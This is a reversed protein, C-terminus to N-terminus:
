FRLLLYRCYFLVAVSVSIIAGDSNTIKRPIDPPSPAGYHKPTNRTCSLVSWSVRTSLLRQVYHVCHLHFCRLWRAGLSSFGSWQIQYKRTRTRRMSPPQLGVTSCLSGCRGNVCYGKVCEATRVAAQHGFCRRRERCRLFAPTDEQNLEQVAPDAPDHYFRQL